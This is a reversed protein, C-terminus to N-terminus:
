GKVYMIRVSDEFGSSVVTGTKYILTMCSVLQVAPICIWTKEQVNGAVM